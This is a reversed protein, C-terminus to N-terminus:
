RLPVSMDICTCNQLYTEYFMICNEVQHYYFVACVCAMALVILIILIFHKQFFRKADNPDIDIVKVEHEQSM